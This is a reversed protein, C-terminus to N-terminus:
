SFGEQGSTWVVGAGIEMPDELLDISIPGKWLFTGQLHRRPEWHLHDRLRDQSRGKRQGAKKVMNTGTGPTEADSPM